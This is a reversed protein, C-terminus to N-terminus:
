PYFVYLRYGAAAIDRAEIWLRVPIESNPAFADTASPLYEAPLFVRRAIANDRTDTLTLELAPHDQVYAARNKLSANLVLLGGRAPDAQLDSDEISILEVHRPLPIASDFSQSLSELLPRLLPVGLALEGRFRYGIQAVLVLILVTAVLLFPWRAAPTSAGAAPYTMVGEAWKSYGPIQTTERPLILGTAKGLERAEEVSLPSPIEAASEPNGADGPAKPLELSASSAAAETSETSEGTEAQNLAQAPEEEHPMEPLADPMASIGPTSPLAAPTAFRIEGSAETGPTDPCAGPGPRDTGPHGPLAAASEDLLTDLANFVHQCQGCRVKGARARLQEPTVRFVTQCIPCATKM